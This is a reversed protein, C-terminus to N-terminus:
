GCDLVLQGFLGSGVVVGGPYLVDDTIEPGGSHVGLLDVGLANRRDLATDVGDGREVALLCDALVQAGARRPALVEQEREARLSIELVGVHVDGVGGLTAKAQWVLR